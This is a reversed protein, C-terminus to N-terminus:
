DIQDLKLAKRGNGYGNSWNAKWTLDGGAEKWIWDKIDFRVIIFGNLQNCNLTYKSRMRFM